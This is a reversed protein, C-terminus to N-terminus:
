NSDFMKASRGIDSRNLGIDTLDRDSMAELAAIAAQEVRWKSSVIALHRLTGPVARCAAALRLHISRGHAVAGPLATIDSMVLAGKANANQDRGALLPPRVGHKKAGHM